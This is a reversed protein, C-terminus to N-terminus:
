NLVQLCQYKGETNVDTTSFDWSHVTPCFFFVTGKACDFIQCDHDNNTLLRVAMTLLIYTEVCGFEAAAASHAVQQSYWLAARVFM